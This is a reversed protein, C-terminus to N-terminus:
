WLSCSVTRNVSSSPGIMVFYTGVDMITSLDRHLLQLRDHVHLHGKASINM